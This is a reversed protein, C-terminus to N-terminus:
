SKILVNSTSLRGDGKHDIVWTQDNVDKVYIKNTTRFGEFMGNYNTVNSFDFASLDLEFTTNSFGTYTFMNFMNTVNITNFKDGLKLTFNPNTRGTVYFMESMSTVKSTNFKDGLDLTFVTSSRGTQYFMREMNKVNSTDFQNGLNLTFSTSSYGTQYFMWNM